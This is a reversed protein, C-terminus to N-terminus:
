RSGGFGLNQWMVPQKLPPLLDLALLGWHRTAALGPLRNSFLRVLRDTFGATRDRDPQRDRAYATLLTADGPM